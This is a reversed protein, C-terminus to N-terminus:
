PKILVKQKRAYSSGAAIAVEVFGAPAQASHGDNLRKVYPLNNTIFIPQGPIARSIAVEGQQIAASANASEEFGLQAGPSYAQKVDDIPTGVAVQWNSRARGTDVPTSLVINRDIVLATRQKIRNSNTIVNSAVIGMHKSFHQFSKFTAM